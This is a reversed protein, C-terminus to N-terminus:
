EGDWADLRYSTSAGRVGHWSDFARVDIRHVGVDLGTPLAGRWLHPSLEAEPSRDLGRLAPAADDRVNEMVLRPDARDVRRMPQWAGGDVRYEVRTESHGMYVNAYVGWAPYAGRRLVQPAHLAMAPTSSPDGEPVRAPHWDLGYAGTATVQLTAFGNPTGDAMTAAPIGDADPAGSWFAGSVAGVNYEHLPREGHWGTDATHWVHRQTHRHGSLLLVNPFRQLLAFLRARDASRVTEAAGTAATDFWPIHAGVVLLRDRRATALYAEVFAFQDERLGGIYAPRAGPQYVVNDLMLVSAGAEEWAYTEPGYVARYSATSAPDDGAEFDLDHNGPLHLWPVDLQATAANIAPYLAPVDNGIDGLTLGLAAPVRRAAPIVSRAYYDVEAARGAQPDAFVLVDLAAADRAARLAFACADDGAAAPRWFRPLAGDRAVTYGPPKIVFVLPRGADLGTYRGTADTRVIRVGDSVRVGALGPEGRGQVGDGNRDEYVVGRECAVASGASLCISALLASARLLLRM